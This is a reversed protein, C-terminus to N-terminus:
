TRIAVPTEDIYFQTTPSNGGSFIGRIAVDQIDQIAGVPTSMVLGPVISALDSFNEIHLDDMTKQSFATVSIPVQDLREERREATVIIEELGTNTGEAPTGPASTDAGFARAALLVYAVTLVCRVTGRTFPKYFTRRM